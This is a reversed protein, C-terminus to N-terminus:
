KKNKKKSYRAITVNSWRADLKVPNVNFKLNPLRTALIKFKIKHESALRPSELFAVKFEREVGPTTNRLQEQIHAVVLQEIVETNLNPPINLAAPVEFFASNTEESLFESLFDLERRADLEEM